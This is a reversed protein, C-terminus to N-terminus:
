LQIKDFIQVTQKARQWLCKDLCEGTATATAATTFATASQM